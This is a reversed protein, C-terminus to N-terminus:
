TTLVVLPQDIAPKINDLRPPIIRVNIPNISLIIPTPLALFHLEPNPKPTAPIM